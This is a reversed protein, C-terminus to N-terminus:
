AVGIEEDEARSDNSSFFTYIQSTQFDPVPLERVVRDWVPAPVWFVRWAVVIDIVPTQPVIIRGGRGQGKKDNKWCGEQRSTTQSSRTTRPRYTGIRCHNNTREVRYKSTSRHSHTVCSSGSNPRVTPSGTLTVQRTSSWIRGTLFVPKGRSACITAQERKEYALPSSRIEFFRALCFGNYYPRSLFALWVARLNFVDIFM